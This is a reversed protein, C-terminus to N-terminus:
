PPSVRRCIPRAGGDGLAVLLADRRDDVGVDDRQEDGEDEEDERRRAHLAEGEREADARMTESNVATSAVCAIRSSAARCARQQLRRRREARALRALRERKSKMPADFHNKQSTRRSGASRRAPSRAALPQVEADVELRPVRIVAAARAARRRDLSTRSAIAGAPKPSASIWVRRSGPARRCRRASRRRAAGAARLDVLDLVREVLLEAEGVLGVDLRDARREALGDGVRREDRDDRRQM